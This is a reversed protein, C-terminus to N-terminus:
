KKSLAEKIASAFLNYYKTLDINTRDKVANFQNRADPSLQGNSISRLAAYLLQGIVLIRILRMNKTMAAEKNNAKQPTFASAMQGSTFKKYCDEMDLPRVNNSCYNTLVGNKEGVLRQWGTTNLLTDNIFSQADQQTPFTKKDVDIKFPKDYVQVEYRVLEPEVSANQENVIGYLGAIYNRDNESIIFKGM